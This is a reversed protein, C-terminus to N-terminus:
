NKIMHKKGESARFYNKSNNGGISLYAYDIVELKYTNITIVRPLQANKETRSPIIYMGANDLLNEILCYAWKISKNFLLKM